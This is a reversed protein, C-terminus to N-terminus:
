PRMRGCRDGAMSTDGSGVVKPGDGTSPTNSVRFVIEFFVLFTVLNASFAIGIEVGEKQGVEQGALEVREDNAAETEIAVRLKAVDIERM